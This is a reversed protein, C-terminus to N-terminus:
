KDIKKHSFPALSLWAQYLKKHPLGTAESLEAIAEKATLGSRRMKELRKIIDDTMEPVTTERKGDIVMAFEGRPGTFHELASSVAGRFIEEHLKTVERCVAIRRDGLIKYIDALAEKLRHPTELVILTAPEDAVSRLFRQRDGIKHPLFGLYTFRDTPLGSAVLATVVISPGPIPVVQIKRKIAAVILDYGPDNLGPTGAESVLAVDSDNLCELIYDLKASKSHEYYSTMPTKIGYADLLRRTKRTDEAAILAAEQLVRVARFTMDELNGIPTAVIYLIGMRGGKGRM